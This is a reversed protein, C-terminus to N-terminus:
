VPLSVSFLSGKGLQSEVEITGGHSVIVGYCTTLGLGTGGPKSSFFPDFIKIINEDPIGKGNDSIRIRFTKPNYETAIKLQGGRKPMAEIANLVINLLAREMHKRDFKLIAAYPTFEKTVTIKKAVTKTEASVLLDNLLLHINHPKMNLEPPRACNLLETILSNIREINNEMIEVYKKQKGEPAFTESLQALALSVNTSPNRIEHAISAAIRGTFALRESRRTALLEEHAFEVKGCAEKLADEAQKRATIDQSVGICLKNSAHPFRRDWIWRSNGDPRIIRYEHELGRGPKGNELEERVKPLDDPHVADLYSEPNGYLSECSRGWIREYGPSVYILKKNGPDTIWFVEEITDAIAKFRQESELLNKEIRKREIFRSLRNIIANFLQRDSVATPNNEDTGPDEQYYVELKEGLEGRARIKESLCWSSERFGNSLYERGGVTLRVAVQSQWNRYIAEVIQSLCNDDVANTTQIIDSIEYQCSLAKVQRSLDVSQKKLANEAAKQVTIDRATVIAGHSFGSITVTLFQAGYKLEPFTKMTGSAICEMLEARMDLEHKGAYDLYMLDGIAPLRGGAKMRAQNFMSIRGERDVVITEIPNYEFLVRGLEEKEKLQSYLLSNRVAIGIQEGIMEFYSILDPEFRDRQRDNFQMLGIRLEYAKLPILAVSEYGCANCYNRTRTLLEKESVSGLLATTSNTWFSGNRTFFPLEPDFKGKIVNGCMCELLYGESELASIRAGSEDLMCLRNEKEIFEESFGDYVYYPYDGNDELRIGVSECGSIRQLHKLIINLSQKLEIFNNLESCITRVSVERELSKELFVDNNEMNWIGL